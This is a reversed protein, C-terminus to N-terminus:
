LDSCSCMVKGAANQPWVHLGDSTDHTRLHQPHQISLHLCVCLKLRLQSNISAQNLRQLKICNMLAQNAITIICSSSPPSSSHFRVFSAPGKPVLMAPSANSLSSMAFIALEFQGPPHLSHMRRTLPEKRGTAFVCQMARLALISRYRSPMPLLAYWQLPGLQKSLFAM